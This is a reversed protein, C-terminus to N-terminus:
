RQMQMAVLFENVDKHPAFRHSIDTAGPLADLIKKTSTRGGEDNDLCLFIKGEREKLIDIAADVNVISNLVIYNHRIGGCLTAFSLMDMFGEFVVTAANEQYWHTTIGKPSASGKFRSSRLEWGGKDNGYALAYLYSDRSEMFSYHAEKLFQKAIDTNIKRSNLYAYLAKSRLEGVELWAFGSKKEKVEDLINSMTFSSLGGFQACVTGLDTTGVTLMVMDILNGHKGTVFDYWGKGNPTVSLSPHEDQRWPCRCLYGDNTKRIVREEGLYDLCTYKEKIQGINMTDIQQIGRARAHSFTLM